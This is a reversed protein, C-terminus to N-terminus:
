GGWETAGSSVEAGTVFAVAANIGRTIAKSTVTAGTLADINEWMLAEGSKGPFQGLFDQDTLAKQGLGYTEELERVVLGTVQGGTSVGVLLTIDGVYGQTVTEVVFGGEGKWVATISGDNGSYPESTLQGSGPLLQAMMALQEAQANRQALPALGLSLGLLLLSALALAGLAFLLSKHKM